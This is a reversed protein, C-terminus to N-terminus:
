IKPVKDWFEDIRNIETTNKQNIKKSQFQNNKYPEIDDVTKYNSSYWNNLITNAYAFAIKGTADVTKEMANIIMEDSFQMDNKWSKIFEEEKPTLARNIKLQRKVQEVQDTIQEIYKIYQEALDHTVIDKEAWITCQRELQRVSCSKNYNMCFETAMIVVDAPLRLNELINIVSKRETSNLGKNIIQEIMQILFTSEQVSVKDPPNLESLNIATHTPESYINNQQFQRQDVVTQLVGKSIWYEIASKIQIEPQNLINSLLNTSYNKEANRLILLIVKLYLPDVKQIEEDVICKPIAFNSCYAEFNVKYNM